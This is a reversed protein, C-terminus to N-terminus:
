PTQPVTVVDYEVRLVYYLTGTASYTVRVQVDNGVAAATMTGGSITGVEDTGSGVSIAAAGGVSRSGGLAIRGFSHETSSGVSNFRGGTLMVRIGVAQGEALTISWLTVPNGATFAVSGSVIQVPSRDLVFWRGEYTPSVNTATLDRSGSGAAIPVTGDADSYFRVQVNVVARRSFRFSQATTTGLALAPSVTAM